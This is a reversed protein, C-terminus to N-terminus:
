NILVTKTKPDIQTKIDLLTQKIFNPIGINPTYINVIKIEEQYITLKTLIFHDKKERKILKPKFDAQDSILINVGAQKKPEM